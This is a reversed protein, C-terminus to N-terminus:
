SSTLTKATKAYKQFVDAGTGEEPKNSKATALIKVFPAELDKKCYPQVLEM